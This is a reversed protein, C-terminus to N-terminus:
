KKGIGKFRFMEYFADLGDSKEDFFFFVNLHGIEQKYISVLRCHQRNSLSKKPKFYLERGWDAGFTEELYEENLKLVTTVSKDDNVAANVSITQCRINPMQTSINSSDYPSFAVWVEIDEKKLNIQFQEGLFSSEKPQFFKARGETPEASEIGLKALNQSLTEFDVSQATGIKLLFIFIFTSAFRMHDSTQFNLNKSM